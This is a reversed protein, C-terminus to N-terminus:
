SISITLKFTLHSQNLTLISKECGLLEKEKRGNVWKPREQIQQIHEQEMNSEMIGIEKMNEEM